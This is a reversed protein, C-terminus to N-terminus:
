KYNEFSDYSGKIKADQWPLNLARCMVQAANDDVFFDDVCIMGWTRDNRFEVLGHMTDVRGCYDYALLDHKYWM